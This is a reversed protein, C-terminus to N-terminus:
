AEGRCLLQYLAEVAIRRWDGESDPKNGSQFMGNYINMAIPTEAMSKRHKVVLPMLDSWSNLPDFDKVDHLGGRSDLYSEVDPWEAKAIALVKEQITM